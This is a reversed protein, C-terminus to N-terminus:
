KYLTPTKYHAPVHNIPGSNLELLRKDNNKHFYRMNIFTLVAYLTIFILIPNTFGGRVIHFIWTASFAWVIFSKASLKKDLLAFFMGFVVLILIGMMGFNIYADGIIGPPITQDKLGPELWGAVIRQTNEPKDSWIFRPIITYLLRYYSQGHLFSDHQSVYNIVNMVTTSYGIDGSQISFELFTKIDFDFNGISQGPQLHGRFFRSSIAVVFVFTSLIVTILKASIGKKNKNYCYLGSYYFGVLVAASHVVLLSRTRFLLFILIEFAIFILIWMIVNTKKRAKSTFFVLFFMISTTYFGFTAILRFASGSNKLDIRSVNLINFTGLDIFCLLLSFLTIMFIFINAKRISKKGLFVQKLELKKNPMFLCNGICFLLLGVVSLITMKRILDFSYISYHYEVTLNYIPQVFFLMIYFVIFFFSASFTKIYLKMYILVIPLTLLFSSLLTKEDKSNFIFFIIIFTSVSLFTFTLLKKMSM